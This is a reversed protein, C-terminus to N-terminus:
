LLGGNAWIRLWIFGDMGVWGREILDRLIQKALHIWDIGGWGIEIIDTLIQKALHMWDM